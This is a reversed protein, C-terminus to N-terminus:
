ANLDALGLVIASYDIEAEYKAVADPVLASAREYILDAEAYTYWAEQSGVFYMIHYGYNTQVLGTDGTQRTEDFCWADFAPVMQGQTVQEYLGGVTNSGPDESYTNALVAFTDETAEGALWQDLIAQASAQCISWESESYTMQGDEGEIGGQPMVLIHRVDVLKSGDQAVGNEAYKAENEAFYAQVEDATPMISRYLHEFYGYGTYYSTMYNMYGELTGGAGVNSVIMEQADAFGNNAAVTDLDTALSDIYGQYMEGLEFDAAEAEMSLAEYTMWSDLACSLFYQQWTLAGDPASIQTDLPQTMDLGFASIYSGYSSLFNYVEMWYYTQLEGNTLQATGMTAVVTDAAAAADEDAVTYSGKCTADDANGDAPITAETAETEGTAETAAGTPETSVEADTQNKNLGSVVIAILVALVVVVAVVALAIKRPTAKVGEQIKTTEESTEEAPMEVVTEEESLKEEPITNEEGCAPCLTVGEDLEANCHKCNM